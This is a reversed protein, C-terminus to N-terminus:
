DLAQEVVGRIEELDTGGYNSLVVTIKSADAAASLYGRYGPRVMPQRLSGRLYASEPMWQALYFLDSITSIYEPLATPNADVVANLAVVEMSGGADTYGSAFNGPRGGEDYALVETNRMEAPELVNVRIIDQIPLGLRAVLARALLDYGLPSYREEIGPQSTLELNALDLGEDLSAPMGARHDLLMRYNVNAPQDAYTLGRLQPLDAAIPSNLQLRGQDALRFYAARLLLQAIEGIPYRRNSATHMGEPAQAMRYSQEFVTDPLAVLVSGSFRGQQALQYFDQDYPLETASRQESPAVDGDQTPTCAKALVLGLVCALILWSPPFTRKM